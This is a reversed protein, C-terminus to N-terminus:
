SYVYTYMGNDVVRKNDNGFSGEAVLYCEVERHFLRIM